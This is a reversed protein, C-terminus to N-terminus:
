VEEVARCWDQLIRRLEEAPLEVPPVQDDYLNEIRAKDAEVHLVYLNGVLEIEKRAGTLCEDVSALVKRCHGPDDRVDTELFDGVLASPLPELVRLRGHEDRRTQLRKVDM